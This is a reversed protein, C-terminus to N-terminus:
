TRQTQPIYEGDNNNEEENDPIEKFYNRNRLMKSGEKVINEQRKKSEDEEIMRDMDQTYKDAYEKSSQPTYDESINQAKTPENLKQRSPNIYTEINLNPNKKKAKLYKKYDRNSMEQFPKVVENYYEPALNKLNIRSSSKMNRNEDVSKLFDDTAKNIKDETILGTKLQNNRARNFKAQPNVKYRDQNELNIGFDEPKLYNGGFQVTDIPIGSDFGYGRSASMKLENDLNAALDFAKNFEAKAKTLNIRNDGTKFNDKYQNVFDRFIPNSRDAEGSGAIFSGKEDVFSDLDIKFDSNKYDQLLDKTENWRKKDQGSNRARQKIENLTTDEDAFSSFTQDDNREDAREFTPIEGRTYGAKEAFEELNRRYEDSEIREDDRPAGLTVRPKSFVANTLKGRSTTFKNKGNMSTGRMKFAM